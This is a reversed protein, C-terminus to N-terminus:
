QVRFCLIISTLPRPFCSSSYLFNCNINFVSVNFDIFLFGIAPLARGFKLLNKLEDLEDRSRIVPLTGGAHRCLKDAEIWSTRKLFLTSSDCTDQLVNYFDLDFVIYYHKILNFYNKSCNYSTFTASYKFLISSQPFQFYRHVSKLLTLSINWLFSGKTQPTLCLFERFKNYKASVWMVNFGTNKSTFTDTPVQSLILREPNGPLQIIYDQNQKSLEVVTRWSLSIPQVSVIDRANSAESNFVTLFTTLIKIGKNDTLNQVNDLAIIVMEDEQSGVTVSKKIQVFEKIHVADSFSGGKAFSPQVEIVIDIWSKSDRQSFQINFSPSYTELSSTMSLYFSQIPAHFQVNNGYYYYYPSSASIYPVRLGLSRMETRGLIRECSIVPDRSYLAVRYERRVPPRM